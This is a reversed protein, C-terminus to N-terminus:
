NTPESDPETISSFVPNLVWWKTTPTCISSTNVKIHVFQNKLCLKKTKNCLAHSSFSTASSNCTPSMSTMRCRSLQRWRKFRKNRRSGRPHSVVPIGDLRIGGRNVIVGESVLRCLILTFWGLVHHKYSHLNKMPKIRRSLTIISSSM